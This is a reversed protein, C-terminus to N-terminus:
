RQRSFVPPTGSAKGACNAYFNLRHPHTDREQAQHQEAQAKGAARTAAPDPVIEAVGAMGVGHMLAEHSDFPKPLAGPTDLTGGRM